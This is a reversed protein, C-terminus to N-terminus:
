GESEQFWSQDALTVIAVQGLLVNTLGDALMLKTNLWLLRCNETKETAERLMAIVIRLRKDSTQGSDKAVLEALSYSDTLSVLPLGTAEQELRKMVMRLGHM